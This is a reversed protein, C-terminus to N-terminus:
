RLERLFQLVKQTGEEVDLNSNDLEFYFLEGEMNKENACAFAEKKTLLKTERRTKKLEEADFLKM